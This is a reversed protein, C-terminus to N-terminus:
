RIEERDYEAETVDLSDKRRYTWGANNVLIDVKGFQALTMDVAAQWDIAKTVDAKIFTAVLGATTINAAM